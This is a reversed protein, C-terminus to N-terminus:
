DAAVLGGEVLPRLLSGIGGGLAGLLAGLFVTLGVLAEGPINGALSGLTDLLIRFSAPAGWATYMVLGAWGLATGGAGVLWGASRRSWLGGVVGALLTWEWGVALHAGVSLLAVIFVIM